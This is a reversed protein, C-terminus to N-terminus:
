WIWKLLMLLLTPASPVLVHMIFAHILGCPAPGKMDSWLERFPMLWMSGPRSGAGNFACELGFLVYWILLGLLISPMMM